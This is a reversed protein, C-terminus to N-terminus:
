SNGIKAQIGGVTFRSFHPRNEKENLGPFLSGDGNKQAIISPQYVM